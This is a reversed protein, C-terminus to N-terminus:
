TSLAAHASRITERTLEQSDTPGDTTERCAGGSDPASEASDQRRVALGAGWGTGATSRGGQNRLGGAKGAHRAVAERPQRTRRDCSGKGRRSGASVRRSKTTSASVRARHEGGGLGGGPPRQQGTVRSVTGTVRLERYSVTGTVRRRRRRRRREVARERGEPDISLGVEERRRACSAARSGSRSAGLM